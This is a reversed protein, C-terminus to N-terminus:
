RAGGREFEFRVETTQVLLFRLEGIRDFRRQSLSTRLRMRDGFILCRLKLLHPLTQRGRAILKDRRVRRMGIGHLRDFLELMTEARPDFHRLARDLLM